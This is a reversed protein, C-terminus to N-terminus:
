EGLEFPIRIESEPLDIGFVWRGSQIGGPVQIFLRGVCGRRDNVTVEDFSVGEGPAVFFQVACEVRSPPFYELPDRNVNAQTIVPRLEGWAENFQTQTAIPLQSGSPTRVFVNDRTVTASQGQPSTVAFELIMWEDGLQTSAFRYGLVAWLEPGNQRLVYKGVRDVGPTDTPTASSCGSIAMVSILGATLVAFTMSQKFKM